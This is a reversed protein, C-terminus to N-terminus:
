SGLRDNFYTTYRIKGTKCSIDFGRTNAPMEEPLQNDTRTLLGTVSDTIWVYGDPDIYITNNGNEDSFYIDRCLGGVNFYNSTGEGEWYAGTNTKLTVTHGMGDIIYGPPIPFINSVNTGKFITLNEYLPFYKKDDQEYGYMEFLQQLEPPPNDYTEKDFGYLLDMLQNIEAETYFGQHPHYQSDMPKDTSWKRIIVKLGPGVGPILVINLRMEEGAHLIKSDAPNDEDDGPRDYGWGTERVFEVDDFTGYYTSYDAYEASNLKIQYDIRSFDVEPCVYFVDDYQPENDIFYTVGKDESVDYPRGVYPRWNAPAGSEDDATPHPYFTAKVPMGIITMDAALNKEISGDTNIMILSEIVIKSVLHHYSLEVYKGHEAYSFSESKAGIFGEYIANNMHEDYGDNEASNYFRVDVPNASPTYYETEGDGGDPLGGAPATTMWPITWSYFTHKNNLNEWNLPDYGYGEKATLMGSQGSPVGYVGYKKIPETGETTNLEIYFNQKWSPYEVYVSDLGPTGAKTLVGRDENFTYGFMLQAGDGALDGMPDFDDAQCGTLASTLILTAAFLIYNFYRKM